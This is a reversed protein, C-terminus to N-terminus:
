IKMNDQQGSYWSCGYFFEYAAKLTRPHNNKGLNKSKENKEKCVDCM